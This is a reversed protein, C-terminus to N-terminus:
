KLIENLKNDRDIPTSPSLWHIRDSHIWPNFNQTVSDKRACRNYPINIIEVKSLVKDNYIERIEYIVNFNSKHDTIRYDDDSSDHLLFVLGERRDTVNDVLGIKETKIKSRSGWM